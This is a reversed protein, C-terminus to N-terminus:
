VHFVGDTGVRSPGGTKATLRPQPFGMRGAQAEYHDPLTGSGGVGEGRLEVDALLGSLTGSLM